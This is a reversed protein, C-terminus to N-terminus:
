EPLAPTLKVSGGEADLSDFAEDLMEIMKAKSAGFPFKVGVSKAIERLRAPTCDTHYDPRRSVIKVDQENSDDNELDDDIEVDDIGGDDAEAFSQAISGTKTDDYLREVFVSDAYKAIGGSVLRAAEGDEVAFPESEITKPRLRGNADHYGYAGSIIKITRM